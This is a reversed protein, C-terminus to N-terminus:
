PDQQEHDQGKEKERGRRDAQKQEKTTAVGFRENESLMMEDADGRIEYSVIRIM